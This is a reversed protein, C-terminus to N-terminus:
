TTDNVLFSYPKKTYDKHLKMFDKFGIESLKNSGIQEFERKNAVRMIFYHAAKLRITKPM